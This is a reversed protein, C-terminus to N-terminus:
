FKERLVKERYDFIQQLKNKVFLTNVLKGIIGFPIKYHVIDRMEVGNEHAILFHQHHWFTYPGFRQEDVFYDLEKVHTIETVWHLNIGAVPSVTYEIIQGPYMKLLTEPNSLIRFGM